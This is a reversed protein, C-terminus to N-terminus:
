IYYSKCRLSQTISMMNDDIKDLKGSDYETDFKERKQYNTELFTGFTEKRLNSYASM